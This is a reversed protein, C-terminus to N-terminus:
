NAFYISSIELNDVGMTFIGTKEDKYEESFLSPISAVDLFVTFTHNTDPIDSIGFLTAAYQVEMIQRLPTTSDLQIGTEKHLPMLLAKHLPM